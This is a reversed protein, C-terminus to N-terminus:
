KETFRKVDIERPLPQDHLLFDLLCHVTHAVILVGRTGLGNCVYQHDGISGCIPKRDPTTPRIGTEHKLVELEGQYNERVKQILEDRHQMSPGDAFPPREYTAGLRFVGSHHPMLWKGNNVIANRVGQPAEVTLVEGKNPIIPLNPNYSAVAGSCHVIRKAAIQKWSIHDSHTVVDEVSFQDSVLANKGSLYHKMSSLFVPLDVYGCGSVEGIGFQNPIETHDTTTQIWKPNGAVAKTDWRQRFGEDHMIKLLPLSYILKVGLVQEADTFFDLMFDHHVDANWVDVISRFSMPNFMGAAVLSAASAHNNDVVCVSCGRQLARFALVSGALGQGVILLDVM